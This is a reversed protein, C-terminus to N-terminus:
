PRYYNVYWEVFRGVGTEISTSPSFDIEKYLDSVEAFSELVDGAQMEANKRIARKGLKQELVDIFYALEVPNNNGVNFLRHPAYSIAPNPHKADWKSNGQPVRPLLRKISETIDDVYTFDRKMRGGNYVTIEQGELIAKTFIFLAMDPRGYPGYASFFRLGTCPINYLSAYSHAMLENAKKSVAYLSLPHDTHDIVNFPMKRNAGYVSSSSAYVLHTVPFHRCCELINLFGHVNTEIYVDPNVLSYRVGAQAALNVVYDFKEQDFLKILSAKDVINIKQFSFSPLDSLLKLRANKLDVDYYEDINDIGTVRYGNKALVNSLHFGIFGAAGTVLVKDIKKV